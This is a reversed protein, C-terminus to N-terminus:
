RGVTSMEGDVDDTFSPEDTVKVTVVDFTDLPVVKYQVVFVMLPFTFVDSKESLETLPENVIM